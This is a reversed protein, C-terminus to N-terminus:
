AARQPSHIKVEASWVAGAGSGDDAGLRGWVPDAGSERSATVRIACGHQIFGEGAMEALRARDKQGNDSSLFKLEAAWAIPWLETWDAKPDDTTPDGWVVIDPFCYGDEQDDRRLRM